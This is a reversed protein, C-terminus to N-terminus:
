IEDSSYADIALAHIETTMLEGLADYIARHRRIMSMDRFRDAVVFVRFHGRGDKAGEHGVHLHSEDEVILEEPRLAKDIRERIAQLRQETDM